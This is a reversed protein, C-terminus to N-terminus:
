RWLVKAHAVMESDRLRHQLSTILYYVLILIPAGRGSWIGACFAKILEGEKELLEPKIENLPFPRQCDDFTVGNQPPKFTRVTNCQFLPSSEDMHVFETTDSGGDTWWDWGVYAFFITSERGCILEWTIRPDLNFRGM